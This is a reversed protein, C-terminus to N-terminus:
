KPSATSESDSFQHVEVIKPFERDEQREREGRERKREREEWRGWYVELICFQILWLEQNMTCKWWQDIYLDNKGISLMRISVVWNASKTIM